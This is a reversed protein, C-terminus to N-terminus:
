KDAARRAQRRCSAGAHLSYAQTECTVHLSCAKTECTVHMQMVKGPTCGGPNRPIQMFQPDYRLVKTEEEPMAVDGEQKSADCNGSAKQTHQLPTTNTRM